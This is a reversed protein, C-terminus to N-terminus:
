ISRLWALASYYDSFIKLPHDQKRFKIYFKFIIRQPLSHLVLAEAIAHMKNNQALERAEKSVNAHRCMEVLVKVTKGETLEKFSDFGEQFDEVESYTNPMYKIFFIDSDILQAVSNKNQIIQNEILM